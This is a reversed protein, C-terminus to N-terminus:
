GDVEEQCVVPFTGKHKPLTTDKHFVERWEMLHFLKYTKLIYVTYHQQIHMSANLTKIGTNSM